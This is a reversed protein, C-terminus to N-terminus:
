AEQLSQTYTNIITFYKREAYALSPVVNPQPLRKRITEITQGHRGNQILLYETTM